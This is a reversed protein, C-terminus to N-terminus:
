SECHMYTFLAGNVASPVSFSRCADAPVVTGTTFVGESCSVVASPEQDALSCALGLVLAGACWTHKFGGDGGFGGGDGYNGGGGVIRGGGDGGYGHRSDGTGAGCICPARGRGRRTCPWSRAALVPARGVPKLAMRLSTGEKWSPGRRRQVDAFAWIGEATAVVTMTSDFPRLAM